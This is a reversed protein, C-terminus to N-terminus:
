GRFVPHGPRRRYRYASVYRLTFVARCMRPRSEGLGRYVARTTMIPSGLHMHLGAIELNPLSAALAYAAMAREIDVGFKNEKKGTSTYKHTKPDVDPNVRIAIRGTRGMQSACASIRKLEPESEVTFYLIDQELAYAIEQMSKGVGAFVIRSPDVGAEIARYLKAVRCSTPVQM